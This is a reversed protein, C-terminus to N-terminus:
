SAIGHYVLGASNYVIHVIMAPWISGSARLLVGTAVGVVFAVPMVANVGHAVAFIAASSLVGVWPGWRFLFNAILGRFLLEEGIPTLVGGLFVTVALSLLSLQTADRYAQQVSDSGPFLPDLLWSVPWSLFFCAVGAGVGALVWVARVRHFGFPGLRRIRVAMAAFFGGAPAVASEIFAVHGASLPGDEPVLYGVIGGLLYLTIAVVVGVIVEPWGPRAAPSAARPASDAIDM